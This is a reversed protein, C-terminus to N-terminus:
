LSTLKNEVVWEAASDIAAQRGNKRFEDTDAIADDEEVFTRAVCLKQVVGEVTSVEATMVEMMEPHTLSRERGWAYGTASTLFPGLILMTTATTVGKEACLLLYQSWIDENDTEYTVTAPDPEYEPRETWVTPTGSPWVNVGLQCINEVKTEASDSTILVRAVAEYPFTKNHPWEGGHIATKVTM